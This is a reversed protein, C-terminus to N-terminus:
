PVHFGRRINRGVLRDTLDIMATRTGDPRRTPLMLDLWRHRETLFTQHYDVVQIVDVPKIFLIM